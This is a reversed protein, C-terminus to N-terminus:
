KEGLTRTCDDIAHAQRSATHQWTWPCAKAAFGELLELVEGFDAECSGTGPLSIEAFTWSPM